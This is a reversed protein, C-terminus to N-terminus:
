RESDPGSDADSRTTEKARERDREPEPVREPETAPTAEVQHRLERVEKRRRYGRGLGKKLLWAGALLAAATCFGIFFVASARTGFGLGFVELTAAAGSSAAVGAALLVAVGILILGLVVM